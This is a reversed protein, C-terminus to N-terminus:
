TGWAKFEIHRLTCRVAHKSPSVGRDEGEGKYDPSVHRQGKRKLHERGAVQCMWSGFSSNSQVRPYIRYRRALKYSDWWQCDTWIESFIRDMIVRLAWGQFSKEFQNTQDILLFYLNRRTM